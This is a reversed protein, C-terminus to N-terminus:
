RVCVSCVCLVCMCWMSESKRERERCRRPPPCLARHTSVVSCRRHALPPHQAEHLVYGGRRKPHDVLQSSPIQSPSVLVFLSTAEREVGREERKACEMENVGESEVRTYRLYHRSTDILLGRWPYRPFDSVKLPVNAVEYADVAVSFCHSLCKLKDGVHVREREIEIWRQKEKERERNTHARM